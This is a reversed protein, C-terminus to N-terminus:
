GTERTAEGLRESLRGWTQLVRLVHLTDLLALAPAQLLLPLVGAAGEVPDHALNHVLEAM